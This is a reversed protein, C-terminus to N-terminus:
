SCRGGSGVSKKEIVTKTKEVAIKANHNFGFISTKEIVGADHNGLVTKESIGSIRECCANPDAGYGVIDGLCFVKYESNKPFSEIVRNLAELNGHIDSLIINLMLM